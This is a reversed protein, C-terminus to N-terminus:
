SPAIWILLTAVHCTVFGSQIIRGTTKVIGADVLADLMGENESYNKIIVENPQLPEPPLNVTATFLPEEKYVDNKLDDIASVLQLAIRGNNTYKTKKVHCTYGM